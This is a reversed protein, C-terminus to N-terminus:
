GATHVQGAGSRACRGLICSVLRVVLGILVVLLLHLRSALTGHVIRGEGLSVLLVLLEHVVEMLLSAVGGHVEVLEQGVVLLVHIELAVNALAGVALFILSVIELIKQVELLIELVGAFTAASVVVLVKASDLEVGQILGSLATIVVHARAVCLGNQGVETASVHTMAEHGAACCIAAGFTAQRGDRVVEPLVHVIGFVHSDGVLVGLLVPHALPLLELLLTALVLLDGVRWLVALGLLLEVGPLVLLRLNGLSPNGGHVLLRSQGADVLLVLVVQLADLM